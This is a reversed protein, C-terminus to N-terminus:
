TEFAVELGHFAAYRRAASEFAGDRVVVDAFVARGIVALDRRLTRRWTGVIQGGVVVMPYFVGNAGPCIASANARDIVADRNQYGLLYEDYGALLALHGADVAQDDAGEAVWYVTGDIERPTVDPRAAEFGARADTVTIGAWWALDHATAPGHSIAYRRALEALSEDRPRSPAGHTWDDLLVYTQQKGDNPGLCLVARLALQSLIHYGRQGATSVGGEDFALLLDGRQMRQRGALRREAIDRCRHIDDETLELQRLRAASSSMSRDAALEVRWRAEEAAVFHITGRMPWTRLIDGAEIAAEVAALTPNAMRSGIAWVAQHYDQAQMAGMWRVVEGPTEFAPTVLRQSHMRAHAINM